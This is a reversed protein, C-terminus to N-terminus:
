HLLQDGVDDSSRIKLERAIAAHYSGGVSMTAVDVQALSRRIMRLCRMNLTHLILLACCVYYWLM